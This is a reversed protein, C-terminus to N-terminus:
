GAAAAAAITKQFARITARAPGVRQRTCGSRTYSAGCRRPHAHPSAVHGSTARLISVPGASCLAREPRLELEDRAHDLVERGGEVDIGRQAASEYPDALVDTRFATGKAQEVLRSALEDAV